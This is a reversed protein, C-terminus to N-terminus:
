KVMLIRKILNDLEQFGSNDDLSLSINEDTNIGPLADEVVTSKSPSAIVKVRTKLRNGIKQLFRKIEEPYVELIGGPTVLFIIGIELCPFIPNKKLVSYGCIHSRIQNDRLLTQVRIALNSYEQQELNSFIIFEIRSWRKRGISEPQLESTKYVSEAMLKLLDTPQYKQSDKKELLGLRILNDIMLKKLTSTTNLLSSLQETSGQAPVLEYNEYIHIQRVLEIEDFTLDKTAKMLYFKYEQPVQQFVLSRLLNAYFEIKLEENDQVAASLLAYYDDLSIPEDIIEQFSYGDEGYGLLKEHFDQIRADTREKYFNRGHEVLLKIGKYVIALEPALLSIGREALIDAFKISTKKSRAISKSKSDM